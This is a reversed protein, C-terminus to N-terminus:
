VAITDVIKTLNKQQGIPAFVADASHNSVASVAGSVDPAGVRGGWFGAGGESELMANDVFDNDGCGTKVYAVRKGRLSNLDGGGGAFLAWRRSTGGGIEANALVTGAGAVCQAEIIAFDAGKAQGYSSYVKTDVKYGAGLAQEIARGLDQVYTARAQSGAFTVTPAYIGVTITTTGGGAPQSEGRGPRLLFAAAGVAGLSLLIAITKKM